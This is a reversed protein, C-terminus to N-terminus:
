LLVPLLACACTREPWRTRDAADDDFAFGELRLHQTIRRHAGVNIDRSPVFSFSQGQEHVEDAERAAAEGLGIPDAERSFTEESAAPRQTWAMAFPLPDTENRSRRHGVRGFFVQLGLVAADRKPEVFPPLDTIWCPM